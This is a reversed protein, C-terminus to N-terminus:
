SRRDPPLPSNRESGSSVSAKDEMRPQALAGPLPAPTLWDEAPIAYAAQSAMTYMTQVLANLPARLQALAALHEWALPAQVQQRQVQVMDQYIAESVSRLSTVLSKRLPRPQDRPSRTRPRKSHGPRRRQPRGRRSDQAGESDRSNGDELVKREEEQQAEAREDVSSSGSSSACSHFVQWTVADRSRRRLGPVQGVEEKGGLQGPPWVGHM